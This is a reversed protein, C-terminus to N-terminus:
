RVKKNHFKIVTQELTDLAATIVNFCGISESRHMIKLPACECSGMKNNFADFYSHIIEKLYETSHANDIVFIYGLVMLAGTIAGCKEEIFMGGGFPSSLRISEKTLNMKYIQNATYLVSEACNFDIKRFVEDIYYEKLM